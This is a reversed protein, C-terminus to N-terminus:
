ISGNWAKNEKVESYGKIFNVTERVKRNYIETKRSM